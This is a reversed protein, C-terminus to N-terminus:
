AVAARVRADILFALGVGAILGTFVALVAIPLPKPWSPSTPTGIEGLAETPQLFPVSMRQAVAVREEGLKLLVGLMGSREVILISAAAPNDKQLRAANLAAEEALRSLAASQADMALIRESLPTLNKRYIQDHLELVAGRIERLLRVADEPRDGEVVLEVAIGKRDPTARRLFPRTRLVGDAAIEGHESMLRASLLDAPEFAGTGTLQGIRIKARAEFTPGKLVLYTAGAALCVLLAGILVRKQRALVRWFRQSDLREAFRSQDSGAEEM